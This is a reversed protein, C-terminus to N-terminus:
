KARESSMSRFYHEAHQYYNEAAVTNGGQAEARALALYREYNRQANSSSTPAPRAGSVWRQSGGGVTPGPRRTNVNSNRHNKMAVGHLDQHLLVRAVRSSVLCFPNQRHNDRGTSRATESMGLASWSRGNKPDGSEFLNSNGVLPQVPYRNPNRFFGRPCDM